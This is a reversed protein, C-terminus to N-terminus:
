STRNWAKRALSISDTEVSRTHCSVCEVYWRFGVLHQKVQMAAEDGCFPCLRLTEPSRSTVELLSAVRPADHLYIVQPVPRTLGDPGIEWHVVPDHTILGTDTASFAYGAAHLRLKLEELLLGEDPRSIKTLM